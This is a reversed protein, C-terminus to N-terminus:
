NYVIKYEHFSYWTGTEESYDNLAKEIAEVSADVPHGVIGSVSEAAEQLTQYYLPELENDLLYRDPFYKGTTDNTEYIETGPEENVYYTKLTLTADLFHRTESQECWACSMNIRLTSDSEKEFDEIVGQCCITEWDGGLENVLEGLWMPGYGNDIKPSERSEMEKLVRYLQDNGKSDGAVRYTTTTWNPM